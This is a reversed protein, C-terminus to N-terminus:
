GYQTSNQIMSRLVLIHSMEDRAMAAGARGVNVTVPKVLSEQAFDVFKKPMTASFLLMQRQGKFFSLTHAVEEDHGIEQLAADSLGCRADLAARVAAPGLRTPPARPVAAACAAAAAAANVAAAAAATTAAVVVIAAAAVAAAVAVAVAVVVVAVVVVVDVIDVTSSLTSSKTSTSALTWNM